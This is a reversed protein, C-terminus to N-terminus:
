GFDLMFQKTVFDPVNRKSDAYAALPDGQLQSCFAARYGEVVDKRRFKPNLNKWPFVLKSLGADPLKLQPALSLHWDLFAALGHERGRRYLWEDLCAELYREVYRM